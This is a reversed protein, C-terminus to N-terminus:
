SRRGDIMDEDACVRWSEADNFRGETSSATMRFSEAGDAGCVINDTNGSLGRADFPIAGGKVKGGMEFRIFMVDVSDEEGDEAQEDEGGKCAVVGVGDGIRFM